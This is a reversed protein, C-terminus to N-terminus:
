RRKPADRTENFSVGTPGRTLLTNIREQEKKYEALMLGELERGRPLKIRLPDVFRGNVMVEYHLHPGTSLGTSGLYGIVQGQAIRMGPKINKAFASMHSYTTVYGNAHRIEVRRGYGSDWEAKEITGNGAAFIPTGVRDSWDVGTHMKSYRLIPHTRMGFGSRFTGGAIPKRVLFKRASRGNEDYYDALGDDSHQFRYFRRTEGRLTLTAYMVDNRQSDEDDSYLVDFADGPFVRRNLDLDYAFVRIIEEIVPRPMDQRLATEYISRYISTGGSEEADDSESSAESESARNDTRDVALAVWRGKDSLAFMHQVEDGAAISLRLLASEEQSSLPGSLATVRQGERVPNEKIQAGVSQFLNTIQAPKYGMAILTQELTEGKRLLATKETLGGRTSTTSSKEAISINEQVIRVDIKGDGNTEKDTQSTDAPNFALKPLPVLGKQQKVLWSEAAQLNAEEQSVTPGPQSADLTSLEKLVVSIDSDEELPSQSKDIALGGDSILRLPNFVPITKDDFSTVTVLNANIRTFPRVRIVERDNVRSSVTVRMTQRSSSAESFPLLRDGKRNIEQTEKRKLIGAVEPARAFHANKDLASFVAGAMLAAGSVATIIAGSLWRVSVPRREPRKAKAGPALLPADWGYVAISSSTTRAKSFTFSM